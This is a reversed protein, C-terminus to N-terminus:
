FYINARTDGCRRNIREYKRRVYRLEFKMNAPHEICVFHCVDEAQRQDPMEPGVVVGTLM